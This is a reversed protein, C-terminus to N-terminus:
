SEPKQCTNVWQDQLADRRYAEFYLTATISHLLTKQSGNRYFMQALVRTQCHGDNCQHNEITYRCSCQPNTPSQQRQPGFRLRVEPYFPVHAHIFRSPTTPSCRKSLILTDAGGCLSTPPTAHNEVTTKSGITCSPGTTVTLSESCVEEFRRQQPARCTADWSAQINAKVDLRITSDPKMSEQGFYCHSRYSPKTELKQPIQCTFPQANDLTRNECGWLTALASGTQRFPTLIRQDLLFGTHCVETTSYGPLVIRERHCDEPTDPKPVPKVIADHDPGINDPLRPREPFGHDLVQIAQCTPDSRTRCRIVENQAPQWLSGFGGEYPKKQKDHGDSSPIRKGWYWSPDRQAKQLMADYDIAPTPWETLEKSLAASCLVMVSAFSFIIKKNRM